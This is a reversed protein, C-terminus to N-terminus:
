FRILFFSIVYSYPFNDFYDIIIHGKRWIQNNGSRDNKDNKNVNM